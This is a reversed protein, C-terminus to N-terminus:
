LEVWGDGASSRLAADVVRQVRHGDRLTPVPSTQGAFAPVWDELMLALARIAGAARRKPLEAGSAPMRDSPAVVEGETSEVSGSRIEPEETGLLPGAM